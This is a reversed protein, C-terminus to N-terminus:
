NGILMGSGAMREPAEECQAPPQNYILWFHKLARCVDEREHLSSPKVLYANAGLDYAQRVDGPDASSTFIIVPLWRLGPQARIWSLVQFGTKQPMKVDLLALCPLPYNARDAFEGTGSLYDIATQGDQVVILRHSIETREFAHQLLFIDEETDEAYLIPGLNMPKGASNVYNM